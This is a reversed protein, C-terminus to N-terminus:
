LLELQSESQKKRRKRMRRKPSFVKLLDDLVTLMSSLTVFVV